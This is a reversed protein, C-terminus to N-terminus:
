SQTYIRKVRQSISTIIEYPITDCVAALTEIPKTRSFVIVEDGIRVQHKEGLDLMTLDMCVNGIIPYDVGNITLHFRGNGASRRLGDAYGINVIAIDINKLVKGRRNYGVTEGAKVPKIQIVAARLTHAKELQGEFLGTSDIGYMGLGLRVWDFHFQPFRLIGSSNLIHKLPSYGLSASIQDYAAEFFEVQQYTFYDLESSESGSLHSFISKVLINPHASLLSILQEFDQETFGLRRMGSDIKIHITIKDGKSVAVYDIIALLISLSHVEPELDFNIMDRIGSTDPNLIIIPSSIHNTRLLVGEDVYAVALSAVQRFELFRALEVSGSGYAGAKIIAVLKTNKKLHSAFFRVNHDVANLDTELVTTHRKETLIPVIRELGFRRSGKVLVAKGEFSLRNIESILHDVDAFAHLTSQADLYPLIHHGIQGIAIIENVYFSRMKGAVVECFQEITLDLQDFDSIVICKQRHGAHQDLFKFASHLSQLDASYTDNIIISGHEGAKMELRMPLHYLSSVKAILRQIDYGVVLCIAITHLCNEISAEDTFPFYFIVPKEQYIITVETSSGAAQISKVTFLSGQSMGWSCLKKHHLTLSIQRGVDVHDACFIVQDALHCLSLKEVIKQHSSEFGADHADGINLIVGITPQIVEAIAQMEGVKSIGAEFIGLQESETMQLVSIPVGLQSNFSKPSKVVKRDDLIFGLWEKVTTKGNSGTIGIVPIDFKKRHWAALRQLANISSAVVYYNVTQHIIAPRSQCVINQVGKDIAAEIYQHGDQVDGKLAFFISKEPIDIYRSDYCVSVVATTAQGVIIDICGLAQALEEPLYHM